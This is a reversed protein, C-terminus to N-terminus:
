SALIIAAVGAFALGTGLAQKGGFPERLFLVALVVTFITSTQNLIAAVSADNYKFGAVWAIMAVYSSLFCALFTQGHHSSAWLSQWAQKRQPLIAINLLGAVVGAALRITVVWLLPVTVFLPKVMVIGVAMSLLGLAGLLVGLWVGDPRHPSDEEGSSVMVVSALIAAGGMAQQWSFHEGLALVAITVIFPSYLCEVIAFRSAGIIKLCHLMLADAIGIGLFGSIVLLMVDRSQPQFVDESFVYITPIMLLVGVTNKYLNLAIPSIDDGTRKFLILSLSWIFACGVALAPGMFVYGM